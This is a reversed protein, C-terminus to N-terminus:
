ESDRPLLGVYPPSQRLRNSNDSEGIMADILVSEDTNTLIERWERYVTTDVGRAKWRDLNALSKERIVPISFHSLVRRALELKQEDIINHLNSM